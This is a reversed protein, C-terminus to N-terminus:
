KDPCFVEMPCSSPFFSLKVQILVEAIGVVNAYTPSHYPWYPRNGSRMGQYLSLPEGWKREPSM